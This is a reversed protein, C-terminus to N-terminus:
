GDASLKGALVADAVEILQPLVELVPMNVRNVARIAREAVLAAATYWRLEASSPLARVSRYGDLFAAGLGDVATDPRLLQTTLLTGLMSGMDAAAAGSGGQDFDIMHVEDAHFLVNNAHVDGHLCVIAKPSPPGGALQNRVARVADAVDPRATMVLDASNLVREERYRQFPGRGFDTPLGHINALAAGLQKMAVPRVEAPLQTWMRGRMPELVIIRDPRAWGLARPTRIGDLLAISAAIRNYQNAVDLVDRDLYAKAFGSVQGHPDLLRVTASKEPAYEVLESQDWAVGSSRRVRMPPDLLTGLNRLKRDNPLTWWVTNTHPDHAVGPMGLVHDAHLEANRFVDASNDFTRASMVFRRGDAVVDYVVRLSEGIRYKARRLTCSQIVSDGHSMRSLQEAVSDPDLLLDRQPIVPDSALGM